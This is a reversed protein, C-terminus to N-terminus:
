TVSKKLFLMKENDRKDLDVSQNTAVEETLKLESKIRQVDDKLQKIQTSTQKQLDTKKKLIDWFRSLKDKMEEKSKKETDPDFDSQTLIELAIYLDEAETVAQMLEDDDKEEDMHKNLEAKTGFDKKVNVM